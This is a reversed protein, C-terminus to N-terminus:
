TFQTKRLRSFETIRENWIVWVYGLWFFQLFSCLVRSGRSSHIFQGLHDHLSDLDASSIGIWSSVMSWLPVFVPYSLFLHHVTELGDCGTVCFQSGHSIINRTVLNDKTPLKYCILRWALISVKLSVQKHWIFNSTADV